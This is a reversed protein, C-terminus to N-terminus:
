SMYFFFTGHFAEWYDMSSWPVGLMLSEKKASLGVDFASMVVEFQLHQAQLTAVSVPVPHQPWTEVKLLIKWVSICM